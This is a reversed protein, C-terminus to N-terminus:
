LGLLSWVLLFFHVMRRFLREDKPKIRDFGILLLDDFEDESFEAKPITPIKWNGDGPFSNRLMFPSTRYRYNEETMAHDSRIFSIYPNPGKYLLLFDIFPQIRCYMLSKIRM